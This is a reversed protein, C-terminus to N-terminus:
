QIVSQGFSMKNKKSIEALNLSIEILKELQKINYM